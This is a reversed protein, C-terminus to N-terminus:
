NYAARRDAPKTEKGYVRRAIVSEPHRCIGQSWYYFDAERCRLEELHEAQKKEDFREPSPQRIQEIVAEMRAHLRDAWREMESLTM